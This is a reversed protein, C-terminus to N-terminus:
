AYVQLRSRRTLVQVALAVVYHSLLAVLWLRRQRKILMVFETMLYGVGSQDGNYYPVAVCFRTGLLM